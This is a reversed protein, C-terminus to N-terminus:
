YYYKEKVRKYIPFYWDVKIGLTMDFHTSNDFKRLDYEYGPETTFGQAAELSVSFNFRKNNSFNMYGFNESFAPGYTIREYGYLYNGSAEAPQDGNWYYYIQHYWFGVGGTLMLGCNPNPGVGRFIKGFKFMLLHGREFVQVNQVWQGTNDVLYGATTVISDFPNIKVAEGFIYNYEIGYILNCKTKKWYSAGVTSNGGFSKALTGFPVDFSYQFGILPFSLTSDQMDQAKTSFAMTFLVLIPFIGKLINTKLRM